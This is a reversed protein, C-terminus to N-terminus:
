KDAELSAAQELLDELSMKHTVELKDSFVNLRKGLLEIGRYKDALKVKVHEGIVKRDKGTGSWIKEIDYSVITAAVEPDLKHLPIMNGEHDTLDRMNSYALKGVEMLVRDATAKLREVQEAHLEQIRARVKDAKLLRSAGAAASMYTTDPYVAQYARTGSRQRALYELCFLEHKENDLPEGMEFSFPVEQSIGETSKRSINAHANDM